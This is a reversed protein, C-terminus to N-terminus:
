IVRSLGKLSGLLFGLLVVSVLCVPGWLFRDAVPCHWPLGHDPEHIPELHQLVARFGMMSGLSLGKLSGM